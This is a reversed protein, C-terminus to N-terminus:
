VGSKALWRRATTASIGLDKAIKEYSLGGDRLQKAKQQPTLSGPLATKPKLDNLISSFDPQAQSPGFLNTPALPRGAGLELPSPSGVPLGPVQTAGAPLGLQSLQQPGAYSAEPLGGGPGQMNRAAASFHNGPDYGMSRFLM